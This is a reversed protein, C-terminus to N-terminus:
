GSKNEVLKAQNNAVFSKLEISVLYLSMSLYLVM